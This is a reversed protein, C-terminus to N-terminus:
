KALGAGAHDQFGATAFVTGDEYGAAVEAGASHWRNGQACLLVVHDREHQLVIDRHLQPDIHLRPKIVSVAAVRVIHDCLQGAGVRHQAIFYDHDAAM